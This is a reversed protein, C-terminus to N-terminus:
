SVAHRVRKGILEHHMVFFGVVMGIYITLCRWIFTVLVLHNMGLLPAFFHGFLGEAVGSAGPTPSCYMIFTTILLLGVVTVYGVEYGLGAILLAPFSFLSLLFAATFLVSLGVYRKPGALYLTFSRSFRLLERKSKFRWRRHRRRSVLRLRRMGDVTASLPPLLWRARLLLVAFFGLYLAIFLALYIRADLALADSDVNDFILLFIPAGSFIMVMALATRITTAATATGVAVGHRQMYWIQALGGGTALPTVNSVFLNIFVLRAIDRAPLRQNLARLTYHLRLGDATFYVALLLSVSVLLSPSLLRPDFGIAHGAYRAYVLYLGAASLLTFTGVFLLARGGRMGAPPSSNSAQSDEM